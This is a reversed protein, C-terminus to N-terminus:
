DLQKKKYTFLCAILAIVVWVSVNLIHMDIAAFGKGEFISLLALGLHDMPLFSLVEKIFENDIMRQLVPTGILLMMFPTGIVSVHVMNKSVLGIITGVIITFLTGLLLVIGLLLQNVKVIDLIFLSAVSLIVSLLIVPLAKGCLVELASAPSLMVVRLTHKEKEEAILTAQVLMTVMCWIMAIVIVALVEKGGQMQRYFLALALPVMTMLLMQANSKLDQMEKRFIASFRKLSFTM